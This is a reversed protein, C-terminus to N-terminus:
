ALGIWRSVKKGCIKRGLYVCLTTIGLVIVSTLPFPIASFFPIFKMVRMVMLHSLFIGFSCDGLFSLVRLRPSFQDNTLYCYSLILFLTSTLLASLKMQTGFNYDGAIMLGYGEAMQIPISLLLLTFVVWPNFSRKLLSNGLILGLYYYTFWGVCSLGCVISVYQNLEKGAFLWYYKFVLLYLPAILWGVWQWRSKALKGILPTLLVFQIYVFIYYLATCSWTTLFNIALLRPSLHPATYLVTWIVYPIFVRLTRRKFFGPWDENEAKTLYGSLFLFMAVAFNLFPRCFVPLLTGHCTHILVVAVIALGRLVQIKDNRQNM